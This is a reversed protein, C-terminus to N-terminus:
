RRLRSATSNTARLALDLREAILESRKRKGAQSLHSSTDFFYERPFSMDEPTDLMPMALRARLSAELRSIASSSLRFARQEFPPHSFFVRVGRLECNTHFRNLHEIAAESAPTARYSFAMDAFDEPPLGHHAVLDGNRDFSQRRYVGSENQEELVQARMGLANRAVRGFHQAYGKDLLGSFQGWSLARLLGPRCEVLRAIFEPDSRYYREFADYEPSVVVVDGLRLFPGTEQLMFELGIRLHLGMNVPHYNCREAVFASDVGFAMSSGGIFILRPTAQTQLLSNKDLGALYYNDGPPFRKAYRGFIAALLTAHFAAFVALKILFRKM